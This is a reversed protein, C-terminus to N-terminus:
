DDKGPKKFPTKSFTIKGPTFGANKVTKKLKEESPKEEKSVRMTTEGETVDIHVDEVGDIKKLKKELGYACFPCSLGKVEVKIYVQEPKTQSNVPVAYGMTMVITIIAAILKNNITKM